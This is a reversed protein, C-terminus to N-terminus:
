EITVHEFYFMAAPTRELGKVSPKKLMVQTNTVLPIFYAQEVIMRKEADHLLQMRKAADTELAAKAMLDEYEADDFILVPQSEKQWM